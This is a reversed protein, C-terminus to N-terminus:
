LWRREKYWALTQNVGASLSIEPRFGFAKKAKESSCIWYDPELESIKDLSVRGGGVLPLRGGFARVGLKVLQLTWPAIPIRVSQRGLFQASLDLLQRFGIIEDGTLYFTDSEKLDRLAGLIGRCLDSVHILSYYKQGDPTNGTLIPCLRSNALQFIELVGKDRPGYVVPPRLVAVSFDSQYAELLREAELKSKGYISVPRDELDETRAKEDPSPGGAALSSVFIFKRSLSSTRPASKFAEALRITGATNGEYFESVNKASIVGAVHIVADVGQVAKELSGVDSLSGQVKEIRSDQLYSQDSTARLLVRVSIEKDLLLQDVLHSGVFGSAGTVLVKM